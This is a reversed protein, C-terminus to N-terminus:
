LYLDPVEASCVIQVSAKGDMDPPVYENKAPISISLNTDLWGNKCLKKLLGHKM